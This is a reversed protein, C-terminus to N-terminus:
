ESKPNRVEKPSRGDSKPNSETSVSAVKTEGKKPAVVRLIGGTAITHPIVQGNQKVDVACFLNKCPGTSCKPDVTLDFTVEQDNTTIQQEAASIKEPLGCLRIAAKGEFPKAQQLNVVMKGPRGPNVWATEIKGSLFPEAVELPALQSSAYVAGGDVTTHGLVAIKWKRTKAGGGANLQYFVNTAGKAITAESQSSVGPPNWVMQLEIPEDFGPAREAAVELQMSGAQVLPVRPEIIRLKFPAKETVAACIKDVSTNYYTTNNPGEVLEIEQHYRGEVAESESRATLELLKGGVPADASAEFVVPMTDLDAPLPEAFMTVGQPLGDLRFHIEGQFNARKASILTAFRNGRPVAIWQRSQTDNRAVDPIKVTLRPAAPTVEIRYTYDPGGQGLTDRIRVFFNTTESPTFKLDSDVGDADDNSALSHGKADFVEIVSDLPSRLRRAYVSVVVPKGNTARFSFWDEQGKQALIGNFALPPELDTAAAHERDHNSTSAFINPFHSVRVWNPTPAPLGGLEAFVGFKDQPQEPLKIANTFAGTAESYFTFAVIQGAEGGLPYVSTPRPFGGIHLRYECDDSGGYTVERLQVLYKGDRPAVLSLFPDQMALWTDDVDALVTGSADQLVLRPDFVGRGLRMGEVELSLLQGKKAEFAFYDMDENQIVGAITTNLDVKQAHAADNNPEVETVVPFPGVFFTRLESLGSAARLRLHHEGLPCDPAIKVQAEVLRNTVAGLKLVELGLEYCLIERTDQLREGKFRLALETGRQGGTPTIAVLRPSAAPLVYAVFFLSSLAILLGLDSPRLGFSIRLGFDSNDHCPFRASVCARRWRLGKPKPNRTESKKRGKSKPRRIEKARRVEEALARM